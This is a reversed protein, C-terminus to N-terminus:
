YHWLNAFRHEDVIMNEDTQIKELGAPLRFRSSTCLTMLCRLTNDVTNVETWGALVCKMGSAYLADNVAESMSDTMFHSVVYFMTEGYIKNRLAIEGTVINPLTYVFDAPSPFFDDKNQITKQYNRDAELSSSKNFLIIGTDTKPQERDSGALLIESALFGLGSLADMKYFKRYNTGRHKYLASLFENIVFPKREYEFYVEGNLWVCGPEINCHSRIFSNM